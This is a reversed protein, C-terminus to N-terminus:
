ASQRVLMVLESYRDEPVYWCKKAPNWTGGAQKIAERHPYTNGTLPVAKVKPRQPVKIMAEPNQAVLEAVRAIHWDYKPYLMWKVLHKSCVAEDWAKTTPRGDARYALNDLVRGVKLASTGALEACQSLTGYGAAPRYDSPDPLHVGAELLAKRSLEDAVRNHDRCVWHIAVTAGRCEIDRVLTQAEGWLPYLRDSHVAYDGNMQEVIVQSDGAIEFTMEPAALEACRTLLAALAHYEAENNTYRGLMADKGSEAGCTWGFGIDGPNPVACGDFTCHITNM